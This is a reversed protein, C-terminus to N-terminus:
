PQGADTGAPTDEIEVDLIRDGVQIFDVVAEGETVEAFITYRGDLHPTPSHTIFWQTGETDKGASAMGVSGTRYRRGSFESRISYDESGWGDGRKCGDQIVFNPVVRHFVRNDFYDKRALDLFNAVSGPAENVLLEIVMTGRSTKISVRQREPITKVLDWDIPHNFANEVPTVSERNEFLAIAADVPQLSEIHEPLRLKNRAAYLFDANGLISAYKADADALAGAIAGLVAPDDSSVMLDRFLTAFTRRLSPPVVDGAGMWALTTAAASRVVATDAENLIKAVFAYSAPFHKLSGLLAAREYPNNSKECLSQIETALAANQGGKLAAEYLNARVRWNDVQGTLTSVQIWDNGPVTAVIVESAAIGVNADRHNLAEYLYNKIQGYPFTALSRIANTVVRSDKDERIIQKLAAQAEPSSLKGLALASAMRVAPSRDRTAAAILQTEASAVEHTGRAFFHAAGLRCTEPHRESLLQKAVETANASSKGRLAARYLSWALGTARISDGLFPSPDLRWEKTVKGYAELIELMAESDTEAGLAQVLGPDADAHHTQGLAFAAAKRVSADPDSLLVRTLRSIASSDQLSGFARVADRRYAVNEHDFYSYLSDSLRRDQLDAIKVHVPDSFKNPPRDPGQCCCLVTTM